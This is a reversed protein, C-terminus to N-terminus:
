MKRHEAIVEDPERDHWMTVGELFWTKWGNAILLESGVSDFPRPFESAFQKWCFRPFIPFAQGVARPYVSTRLKSIEPQVIFGTKPVKRLETIWDGYVLMDDGGVWVWETRSRDEMGAFYCSDLRSYGFRPGIRAETFPHSEIKQIAAITEHDDEDIRVVVEYSRSTASATLQDLTAILKGVRKRTPIMVTILKM